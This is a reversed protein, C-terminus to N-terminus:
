SRAENGRRAASSRRLAHIPSAPRVVAMVRLLALSPSPLRSWVGGASICVAESVGGAMRWGEARWGGGDESDQVAAWDRSCATSASEEPTLAGPCSPRTAFPCFRLSSCRRMLSLLGSIQFHDACANTARSWDCPGPARFHANRPPMTQPPRFM